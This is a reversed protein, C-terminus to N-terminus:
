DSNSPPKRWDRSRGAATLRAKARSVKAKNGDREM